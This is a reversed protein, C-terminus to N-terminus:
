APESTVEAAHRYILHASRCSVTVSWETPLGLRSERDGAADCGSAFEAAVVYIAGIDRAREREQGQPQEQIQPMDTLRAARPQHHGRFSWTGSFIGLM